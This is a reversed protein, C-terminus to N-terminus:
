KSTQHDLPLFGISSHYGVDKIIPGYAGTEWDAIMLDYQRCTSDATPCARWWIFHGDSTWHHTSLGDFNEDEAHGPLNFCIILQPDFAFDYVALISAYIKQDDSVLINYGIGWEVAFHKRDPSWTLNDAYLNLTTPPKIVETLLHGNTADYIKILDSSLEDNSKFIVTLRDDTKGWNFSWYYNDEDPIIDTSSNSAIDQIRIVHPENSLIQGDLDVQYAEYAFRSASANLLLQVPNNPTKDLYTTSVYNHLTLYQLSSILGDELNMLRYPIPEKEPGVVYWFPNDIFVYNDDLRRITRIGEEGLVTIPSSGDTGMIKWVTRDPNDTSVFLMRQGDHFLYAVGGKETGPVVYSTEDHPNVLSYGDAEPTTILLRTNKPLLDISFPKDPSRCSSDLDQQAASYWNFSTIVLILLVKSINKITEKQM